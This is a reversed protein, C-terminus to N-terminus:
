DRRLEVVKQIVFYKVGGFSITATQSKVFKDLCKPTAYVAYIGTEFNKLLYKKMYRHTKLQQLLYIHTSNNRGSM